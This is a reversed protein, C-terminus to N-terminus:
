AFGLLAVALVPATPFLGFGQDFFLGGFGNPLYAFSSGIDGAYPATPDLTGYVVLFFGLWAVASVAPVALFAAAKSFPDSARALRALILGALTAALVTLRTHLWPLLALAAGHWLWPRLSRGAHEAHETAREW